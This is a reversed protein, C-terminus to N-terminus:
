QPGADAADPAPLTFYITAGSGASSEIGIEGGHADVIKRCISLGIGTGPVDKGHLRKFVGFIREHFEEAVGEGNDKVAFRYMGNLRTASIHIEPTKSGRFRMSNTLLQQFVQATQAQDAHVL